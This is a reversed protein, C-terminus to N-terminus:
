AEAQELCALRSIEYERDGTVERQIDLFDPVVIDEEEYRLPVELVAQEKWFPYLDIEYYRNNWTLCWRTKRIPKRSPDANGLFQTYERETLRGEAELRKRGEVIKKRTIYYVCDEGSRRRRIRIEEDQPAHLYVQEIEERHCDPLAELMAKDPYDV